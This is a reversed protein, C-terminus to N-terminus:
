RVFYSPMNVCFWSRGFAMEPLAARDSKVFDPNPLSRRKLTQFNASTSLFPSSSRSSNTMAACRILTATLCSAGTGSTSGGLRCFFPGSAKLGEPAVQCAVGEPPMPPMPMPIPPSPLPMPGPPGGDRGSKGRMPDSPGGPMGELPKGAIPFSGKAPGFDLVELPEPDMPKPPKGPPQGGKLLPGGGSPPSMPNPPPGIVGIGIGPMPPGVGIGPM